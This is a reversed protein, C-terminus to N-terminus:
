RSSWDGSAPDVSAATVSNPEVGYATALTAPNRAFLLGALLPELMLWYAALVSSLTAGVLAPVVGPDHAELWGRAVLVLAGLGFFVNTANIAETGLGLWGRVHGLLNIAQIRTVTGAAGLAMMGLATGLWLALTAALWFGASPPRAFLSVGGGRELVFVFAVLHLFRMGFWTLVDTAREGIARLDPRAFVGDEGRGTRRAIQVALSGAAIAFILDPIPTPVFRAALAIASLWLFAGIADKGLPRALASTLTTSASAPLSVPASKESRAVPIAREGCLTCFDLWQGTKVCDRCLPQRCGDCVYPKDDTVTLPRIPTAPRCTPEAVFRM